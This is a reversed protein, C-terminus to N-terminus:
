SIAPSFRVATQMPLHIKPSFETAKAQALDIATRCLRRALDVGEARLANRERGESALFRSIFNMGELELETHNM